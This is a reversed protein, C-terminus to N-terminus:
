VHGRHPQTSSPQTFLRGTCYLCRYLSPVPEQVSCSYTCTPPHPITPQTTPNCHPNSTCPQHITLPHEICACRCADSTYVLCASVYVLCTSVHVLCAGLWALCVCVFVCPMCECVCLSCVCMHVCARSHYLCSRTPCASAARGVWAFCSIQTHAAIVVRYIYILHTGCNCSPM